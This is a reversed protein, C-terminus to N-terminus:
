FGEYKIHSERECTIETSGNSKTLDMSPPVFFSYCPKVLVALFVDDSPGLGKAQM